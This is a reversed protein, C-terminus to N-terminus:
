GYWFGGSTYLSLPGVELRLYVPQYTESLGTYEIEFESHFEIYAPTAEGLFWNLKYHSLSVVPTTGLIDEFPTGTDVIQAQSGPSLWCTVDDIFISHESHSCWMYLDLLYMTAGNYPVSDIISYGKMFQIGLFTVSNSYEQYTITTDDSLTRTESIIIEPNTVTNLLFISEQTTHYEGTIKDAYEPFATVALEVLYDRPLREDSSLADEGPAVAYATMPFSFILVFAILFSIYRRM